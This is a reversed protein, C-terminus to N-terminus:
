VRGSFTRPRDLELPMSWTNLIEPVEPEFLKLVIWLTSHFFYITEVDLIQFIHWNNHIMRFWFISLVCFFLQESQSYSRLMGSDRTPSHEPMPDFVRTPSPEPLCWTNKILSRPSQLISAEIVIYFFPNRGNKLCLVSFRIYENIFESIEVLFNQLVNWPSIFQCKERSIANKKLYDIGYVNM